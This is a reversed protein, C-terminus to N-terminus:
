NVFSHVQGIPDVKVVDGQASPVGAMRNLGINKFKSSSTLIVTVWVLGDETGPAGFLDVFPVEVVANM